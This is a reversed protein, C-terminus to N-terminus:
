QRSSYTDASRFAAEGLPHQYPKKVSLFAFKLYAEHDVDAATTCTHHTLIEPLWVSLQCDVRHAAAHVRASAHNM